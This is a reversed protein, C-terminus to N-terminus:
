WAIKQSCTDSNYMGPILTGILGGPKELQAGHHVLFPAVQNMWQGVTFKTAFTSKMQLWVLFWIFQLQILYTDRSFNLGSHPVLTVWNHGSAQCRALALSEEIHHAECIIVGLSFVDHKHTVLENHLLEPVTCKPTGVPTPNCVASDTFIM